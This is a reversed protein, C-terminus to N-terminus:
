LISWFISFWFIATLVLGGWFGIREITETEIAFMLLGLTIMVSFVLLPLTLPLMYWAFLYKDLKNLIKNHDTM